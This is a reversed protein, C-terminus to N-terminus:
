EHCCAVGHSLFPRQHTKAASRERTAALGIQRIRRSGQTLAAPKLPREVNEPCFRGFINQSFGGRFQTSLDIIWLSGSTPGVGWGDGRRHDAIGYIAGDIWMESRNAQNGRAPECAKRVELTPVLLIARAHLAGEALPKAKGHWEWRRIILGVFAFLGAFVDRTAAPALLPLSQHDRYMSISRQCPRQPWVTVAADIIAADRIHVCM